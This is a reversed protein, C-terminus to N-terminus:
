VGYGLLYSAWQWAYMEKKSINALIDWLDWVNHDIALAM